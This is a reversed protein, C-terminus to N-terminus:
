HYLLLMSVFIEVQDEVLTLVNKLSILSIKFLMIVVAGIGMRMEKYLYLSLIEWIMKRDNTCNVFSSVLVQILDHFDSRKM